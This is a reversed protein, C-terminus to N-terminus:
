ISLSFIKVTKVAKMLNMEKLDSGQSLSMRECIGTNDAPTSGKKGKFKPGTGLNIGTRSSSAM